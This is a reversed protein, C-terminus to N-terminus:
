MPPAVVDVVDVDIPRGDVISVVEARMAAAVARVSWGWDVAIRLRVVDGVVVGPATLQTVPADGVLMGVGPVRSVREAVQAAMSPSALDRDRAFVIL